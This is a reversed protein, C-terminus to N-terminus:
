SLAPSVATTGSPQDLNGDRAAETAVSPELRRKDQSDHGVDNGKGHASHSAGMIKLPSARLRAV